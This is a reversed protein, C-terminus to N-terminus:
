KGEQAEDYQLDKTFQAGENKLENAVPKGAISLVLNCGYLHRNIFSISINWTEYILRTFINVKLCM